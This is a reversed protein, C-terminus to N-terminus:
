DESKPQDTRGSPLPGKDNARPSLPGFEAYPKGLWRKVLVVEGADNGEVAHGIFQLVYGGVFCAAAQWWWQQVLCVVSAVFTLPVGVLHLLRNVPHMHREIYNTVFRRLM